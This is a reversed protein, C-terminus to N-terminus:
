VKLLVGPSKEGKILPQVQGFGEANNGLNIEILDQLVLPPHQPLRWSILIALLLIAICIVATYLFAKRNKESEFTASMSTTYYM